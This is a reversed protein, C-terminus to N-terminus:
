KKASLSKAKVLCAVTVGLLLATFAVRGAVQAWFMGPEAIRNVTYPARKTFAWISGSYLGAVAVWLNWCGMITTLVALILHGARPPLLPTRDDLDM